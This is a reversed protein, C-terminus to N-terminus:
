TGRPREVTIGDVTYDINCGDFLVMVRPRPGDYRVLRIDDLPVYDGNPANPQYRSIFESLHAPHCEVAIDDDDCVWGFDTKRQVQYIM